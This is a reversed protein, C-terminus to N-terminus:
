ETRKPSVWENQVIKREIYEQAEMAATAGEGVATAIQRYSYKRADGVAFLGPIKTMMRLDTELHGGCDVPFLNCLFETEPIHGIFVFVGDCAYNKEASTKLNKLTVSEVRKEGNIATVVTGTEFSIKPNRRAQTQYIREAKFDASRVVFLVSRAFRATFLGEKFATDGGGVMVVSKDKFFPADCTACYSVGRGRLKQEGPVDLKKPGAGVACIIAPCRYVNQDTFALNIEGERELRKVNETAFEAGFRRAQAEMRAILEAGSIGEPFGPYNDVDYTGIIQGGIRQRELVITKLESRGAYIAASLAAPGGGVIVIDYILEM